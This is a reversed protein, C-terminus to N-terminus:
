SHPPPCIRCRGDPIRRQHGHPTQPVDQYTTELDCGLDALLEPILRKTEDHHIFRPKLPAVVAVYDESPCGDFQVCRPDKGPFAEEIM